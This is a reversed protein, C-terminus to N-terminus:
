GHHKIHVNLCSSPSFGETLVLDKLALGKKVQVVKMLQGSKMLLLGVIVVRETEGSGTEEERSSEGRRTEGDGARM